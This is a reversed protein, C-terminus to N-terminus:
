GSDQLLEDLSWSAGLRIAAGRLPRFAKMDMLEDSECVGGLLHQGHGNSEYNRHPCLPSSGLAESMM